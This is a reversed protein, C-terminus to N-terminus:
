RVERVLSAMLGLFAGIFAAGLALFGVGRPEPAGPPVAPTALRVHPLSKDELALSAQERNEALKTFFSRQRSIDARIQDLEIRRQRDLAQIERSRQRDLDKALLEQDSLMKALDAVREVQLRELGASFRQIRHRAQSPITELESEVDTLRLTLQDYLANTEHTALRRDLLLQLERMQNRGLAMMQWLGDDSVGKELVLLRPTQALQTRLYLIQLLKKGVVASSDHGWREGVEEVSRESNPVLGEGTAFEEMVHRTEARHEVILDETQKRTGVLKRDWSLALEDLRNQYENVVRTGEEILDLLRAKEEQYKDEILGTMPGVNEEHIRQAQELFVQGWTNAVAAAAEPTSAEAMLEITPSLTTAEASPSVVVESHIEDGTRLSETDKLVGDSRLREATAAVVGKSELLRQYDEVPATPTKLEAGLRQPAIVLTAVGEYTSSSFIVLSLLVLGALGLSAGLIIWLNRRIFCGTDAWTLLGPDM